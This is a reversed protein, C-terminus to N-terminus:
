PQFRPNGLLRLLVPVSINESYTKQSGAGGETLESVTICKSETANISLVEEDEFAIYRNDQSWYIRYNYSARWFM